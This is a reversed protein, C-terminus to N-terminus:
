IAVFCSINRQLGPRPMMNTDVFLDLILGLVGFLQFSIELGSFGLMLWDTRREPFKATMAEHINGPNEPKMRM